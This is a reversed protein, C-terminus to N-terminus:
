RILSVRHCMSSPDQAKQCVQGWADIVVSNESWSTGAEGPYGMADLDRRLKLRYRSIFGARKESNKKKGFMIVGKENV